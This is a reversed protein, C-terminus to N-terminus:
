KGSYYVRVIELVDREIRVNQGTEKLLSLDGGDDVDYDAIAYISGGMTQDFTHIDRVLKKAQDERVPSIYLDGDEIWLVRKGGKEIAYTTIDEGEKSLLITKKGNTTACLEDDDNMYVFLGDLYKIEHTQIDDADDLDFSTEKKSRLDLINIEEDDNWIIKGSEDFGVLNMMKDEYNRMVREINKGRMDSMYLDDDKAYLVRKVPRKQKSLVSWKLIFEVEDDIEIEDKGYPIYLLEDDANLVLTDCSKPDFLYHRIDDCVDVDRKGDYILLERDDTLILAKKNNKSLELLRADRAIKDDDGDIIIYLDSGENYYATKGDPLGKYPTIILDLETIEKAEGNKYSWLKATGSDLTKYWLANGVLHMTHPVVDEAIVEQDRSRNTLVIENDQNLCYFLKGDPTCINAPLDINALSLVDDVLDTLFDSNFQFLEQHVDKAILKVEAGDILYIDDECKAILAYHSDYDIATDFSLLGVIVLVLVAVAALVIIISIRNSKRKVETDEDLPATNDTNNHSKKGTIGKATKVVHETADKLKNGVEKAAGAVLEGINVSQEGSSVTAGCEPCVKENEPIEKGCGACKM